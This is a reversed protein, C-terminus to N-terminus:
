HLLPGDNISTLQNILRNKYESHQRNKKEETIETVIAIVEEVTTVGKGLPFLGASFWRESGEDSYPFEAREAMSTVLVRKVTTLLIDAIPQPFGKSLHKGELLRFLPSSGSLYESWINRVYGKSDLKFVLDGLSHMVSSFQNKKEEMMQELEIKETQDIASFLVYRDLFPRASLKYYGTSKSSTNTVCVTTSDSQIGSLVERCIGKFNYPAMTRAVHVNEVFDGNIPGITTVCLK